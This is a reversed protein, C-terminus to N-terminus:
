VMVFLYQFKFFFFFSVDPRLVAAGTEFLSSDWLAVGTSGALVSTDTIPDYLESNTGSGIAISLLKGNPLM